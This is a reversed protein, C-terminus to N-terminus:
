DSRLNSTEWKQECILNGEPKFLPFPWTSPMPDSLAPAMNPFTSGPSSHMNRDLGPAAGKLSMRTQAASSVSQRCWLFTWKVQNLFCLWVIFTSVQLCVCSYLEASHPKPKILRHWILINDPPTQPWSLSSVASVWLGPPYFCQFWM